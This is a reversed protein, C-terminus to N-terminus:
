FRMRENLFTLTKAVDLKLKGLDLVFERGAVACSPSRVAYPMRMCSPRARQANTRAASRRKRHQMNLLEELKLEFLFVSRGQHTALVSYSGSKVSSFEFKLKSIMKPPLAITTLVGEKELLKAAVSVMPGAIFADAKQDELAKKEDEFLKARQQLLEKLEPRSDYLDKLQANTHVRENLDNRTLDPKSELIERVEAKKDLAAKLEKHQNLMLHLAPARGVKMLEEPHKDFAEVFDPRRDLLDRFQTKTLNPHTEIYKALAPNEDVIRAFTANDSMVNSVRETESKKREEEEKKAQADDTRKKKKRSEKRQMKENTYVNKVTIRSERVAELYEGFAAHKRKLEQKHTQVFEVIKQLDQREKVLQVRRRARNSIEDATTRLFIEGNGEAVGTQKFLELVRQVGAAAEYKSDAKCERLLEEMSEQLGENQRLTITPAIRLCDLLQQRLEAQLDVVAGSEGGGGSTSLLEDRSRLALRLLVQACAHACCTHAARAHRCTAFARPRNHSSRPTALAETRTPPSNHPSAM